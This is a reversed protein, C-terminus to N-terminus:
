AVWEIREAQRDIPQATSPIGVLGRFRQHPEKRMMVDALQPAAQRLIAAPEYPHLTAEARAHRLGHVIKAQRAHAEHVLHAPGIRRPPETPM